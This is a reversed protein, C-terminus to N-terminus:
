GGPVQVWEHALVDDDLVDHDDVRPVALVAIAQVEFGALVAQNDVVLKVHAVIGDADLRSLVLISAVQLSGTLIDHHISTGDIVSMASKHHTRLHRAAHLVHADPVAHEKASIDAQTELRGTSTAAHHLVNMNLVDVHDVDRGIADEEIQVIGPKRSGIGQLLLLLHRGLANDGFAVHLRHTLLSGLELVDIDVVHGALTGHAGEVEVTQRLHRHGVDVDGVGLHSGVVADLDVFALIDGDVM